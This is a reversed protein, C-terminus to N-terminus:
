IAAGSSTQGEIATLWPDIEELYGALLSYTTTLLGGDGPAPGVIERGDPLRLRLRGSSEDLEVGVFAAAGWRREALPLLKEEIERLRM